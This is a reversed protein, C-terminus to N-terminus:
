NPALMKGLYPGNLLRQLLSRKKIGIKITHKICPRIRMTFYKETKLEIETQAYKKEVKISSKM